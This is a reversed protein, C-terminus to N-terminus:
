DDGVVVCLICVIVRGQGASIQRAVSPAVHVPAPTSTPMPSPQARATLTLSVATGTIAYQTPISMRFEPRPTNTVFAVGQAQTSPASMASLLLAGSLLLLISATVIWRELLRM